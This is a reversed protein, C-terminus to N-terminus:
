KLLVMKKIYSLSKTKLQYYYIGSSFNEANFFIEYSGPSLKSNILAAIEKGTVDFINLIYFPNGIREVGIDFRIRTSLNFPNPYNQSLSFEASIESNLKVVKSITSDTIKYIKGATSNFHLFFLNKFRDEAFSVVSYPTDFLEQNSPPNIGDWTLAWIRGSTYDAYIYKGYLGPIQDGRYVYGGTISVNGNSHGYVYLPDTPVFGATDCNSMPNYCVFGEKRRWGYNKGTEIINIEEWRSQGVDALWLKGTTEDFSFKWMNRFGYAYIEERYGSTNQYFPNTVPISYNRGGSASDINIRHLKGFLEAKNQAKNNPDGGSGPSSDGFGFYLYGDAGFRLVSGNHNSSPAQATLLVLESSKLASDPNTLSVSFRSLNLTLTTGAGSMYYVYFYRNSLYDPHFAIGFLGAYFDTTVRDTIDLFIKTTTVTSINEFVIIKGRKELVFLRNTNDPPHIMETPYSFLLNPFAERIEYQSFSNNNNIIFSAIVFIKFLIKM